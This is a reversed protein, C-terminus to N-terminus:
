GPEGTSPAGPIPMTTRRRELGFGDLLRCARALERNTRAAVDLWEDHSTRIVVRGDDRAAIVGWIFYLSIALMGEVIEADGASAWHFPWDDLSGAQGISNRYRIFLPENESSPWIGHEVIGFIYGRGSMISHTVLRALATKVGSDAPINYVATPMSGDLHWGEILRIGARELRALGTSWDLVDMAAVGKKAVSGRRITLLPATDSRNVAQTPEGTDITTCVINNM